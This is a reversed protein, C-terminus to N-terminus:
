RRLNGQGLGKRGSPGKDYEHKTDGQTDSLTFGGGCGGGGALECGANSESCRSGTVRRFNKRKRITLIGDRAMGGGTNAMVSHFAGDTDFIRATQTDRPNLCAMELDAGGEITRRKHM